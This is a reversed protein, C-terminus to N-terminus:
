ELRALIRGINARDGPVFRGTSAQALKERVGPPTEDDPWVLADLEVRERPSLKDIAEKIEAVSMDLIKDESEQDDIEAM